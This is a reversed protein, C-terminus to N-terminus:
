HLQANCALEMAASIALHASAACSQLRTMLILIAARAILFLAAANQVVLAVPLGLIDEEAVELVNKIVELLMAPTAPLASHLPHAPQATTM